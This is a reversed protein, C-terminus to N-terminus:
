NMGPPNLLARITPLLDSAIMGRIGMHQEKEAAMAHVCVALEAAHRLGVGQAILAGIVGALVDGTGGTALGPFGGAMITVQQTTDVIVTGAGKLVIVSGYKSQLAKAAAVRDQQINEVTTALLRAAEGPHPTLVAHPIHQPFKALWNLGDADIVMPLAHSIAHNFWKKAWESQSLGPGLILVSARQFLAKAEEPQQCATIMLESPAHSSRVYSEPAVVVSVLGAGARLAAEGSLCVSGGYQMKGAGIIFVHGQDGKNASLRRVPIFHMLKAYDLRFAVPPVSATIAEETGLHDFILKGVVDNGQHLILGIKLAIFTITVDAKVVAGEVVGTDGHLGSPIDIALVPKQSSNIVNIAKTFEEPLPFRSGTGLLADVILEEEFRVPIPHIHGGIELWEERVQKAEHSRHKFDSPHVEYVTVHAGRAQALRALVYGDGGNNGAGCVIAISHVKPWHQYLAALAAQAARIMLDYSILTYHKLAIQDLTRVQQCTYLALPLNGV